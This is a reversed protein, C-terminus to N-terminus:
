GQAEDWYWITAGWASNEIVPMLEGAEFRRRSDTQAPTSWFGAQPCPQGGECRLRLGAKWPEASDNPVGGGSDAEREVLTWITEARSLANTSRPDYGIRSRLAQFGEIFVEACSDPSHPLYIGSIKVIEGTKVQVTPNLRYKPWSAPPNLAGRSEPAYHSTLTGQCWAATATHFMNMAHRMAIIQVRDFELDLGGPMWDCPYDATQGNVDGRVNGALNIVAWEGKSRRIYAANLAELTMRFNPLVREGWTIDIQNPLSLRRYDAPLKQMFQQLAQEAVGVMGAWADRMEGFYDLSSYRELLYIEQPILPTLM